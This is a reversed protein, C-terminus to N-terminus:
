PQFLAPVLKFNAHSLSEELPSSNLWDQSLRQCLKYTPTKETGVKLFKDIKDNPQSLKILIQFIFFFRLLFIMKIGSFFM